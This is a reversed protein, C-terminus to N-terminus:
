CICQLSSLLPKLCTIDVIAQNWFPKSEAGNMMQVLWWFSFSFCNAEDWLGKTEIHLSSTPIQLRGRAVSVELCSHPHSYDVQCGTTVSLSSVSRAEWNCDFTLHMLLFVTTSNVGWKVSLAIVHNYYHLLELLSEFIICNRNRWKM